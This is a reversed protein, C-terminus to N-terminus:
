DKQPKLCGCDSDVSCVLPLSVNAITIKMASIIAYADSPSVTESGANILSSAHNVLRQERWNMPIQAM